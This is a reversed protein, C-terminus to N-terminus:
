IHIVNFYSCLRHSCNTLLSQRDSIPQSVGIPRLTAAIQFNNARNHNQHAESASIDLRIWDDVSSAVLRRGNAWDLAIEQLAQAICLCLRQNHVREAFM